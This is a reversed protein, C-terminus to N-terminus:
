GALGRLLQSWQPDGFRDGPLGASVKVLSRRLRALV